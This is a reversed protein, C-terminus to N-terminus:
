VRDHNTTDCTSEHRSEHCGNGACSNLATELKLYLAYEHLVECQKLWKSIVGLAKFGFDLLKCSFGCQTSSKSM